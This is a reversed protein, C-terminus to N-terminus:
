QMNSGPELLTATPNFFIEALAMVMGDQVTTPLSCCALITESSSAELNLCPGM